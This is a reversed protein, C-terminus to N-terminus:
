GQSVLGVEQLEDLRASLAARTEADDILEHDRSLAAFLAGLTLSQGALASVIQPVPEAVVHTVGSRRHFLATLADLDVRLVGESADATYVPEAM